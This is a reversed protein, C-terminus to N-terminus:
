LKMLTRPNSKHSLAVYECVNQVKSRTRVGQNPDGIIKSEDFERRVM